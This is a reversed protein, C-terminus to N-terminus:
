FSLYQQKRAKKWRVNLWLYWIQKARDGCKCYIIIDENYGLNGNQIGHRQVVGATRGVGCWSQIGHTIIDEITAPTISAINRVNTDQHCITSGIIEILCPPLCFCYSDSKALEM